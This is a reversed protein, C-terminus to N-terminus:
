TRDVLLGTTPYYSYFYDVAEGHIHMNLYHLDVLDLFHLIIGSVITGQRGTGDLLKREQTVLYLAPQWRPIM